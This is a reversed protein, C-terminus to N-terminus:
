VNAMTAAAGDVNFDKKRGSVTFIKRNPDNPNDGHIEKTLVVSGVQGDKLLKFMIDEFQQVREENRAATQETATHSPGNRLSSSSTALSPLTRTANHNGNMNAAYPDAYFHVDDGMSASNFGTTAYDPMTLRRPYDQFFTQQTHDM